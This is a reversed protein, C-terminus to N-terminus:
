RTVFRKLSLVFEEGSLSDRDELIKFASELRIKMIEENSFASALDVAKEELYTFLLGRMKALEEPSKAM